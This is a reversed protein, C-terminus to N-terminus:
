TREIRVRYDDLVTGAIGPSVYKRGEQLAELAIVLETGASRKLLCGDAGTSVVQTVYQRNEHSTLILVKVEPASHKIRRTADLGNLNPMAIDMVVVDPRLREVLELAQRGDEAEGVVTLGSHSDLVMRLGDRLMAHDDALVITAEM